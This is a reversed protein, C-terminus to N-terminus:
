DQVQWSTGFNGFIFPLPFSKWEESLPDPSIESIRLKYYRIKVNVLHNEKEEGQNIGEIENAPSCNKGIGGGSSHRGQQVSTLPRLCSFSARPCSPNTKLLPARIVPVLTSRDRHGPILSDSFRAFRRPMREGCIASRQPIIAFRYTVTRAYMGTVRRQKATLRRDSELYIHV